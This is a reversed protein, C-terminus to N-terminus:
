AAYHEEIVKKPVVGIVPSANIEGNKFFMLTPISQIGFAASLEPNEDVDVKVLVVNENEAEVRDLIPASARCPGCWTAWFDVIVQKGEFEASTLKDTFDKSNTIAVSM